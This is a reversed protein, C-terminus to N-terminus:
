KWAYMGEPLNLVKKIFPVTLPEKTRDAERLAPVLMDHVEGYNDCYTQIFNKVDRSTINETFDKFSRDIVPLIRIGFKIRRYFQPMGAKNRKRLKEINETLQDTGILVLSCLSHLADYLEKFACLAPQKMYEAEDFILQPSLGQNKLVKLWLAISRIKNSKTKGTTLRLQDIIKDLLDGLNDSSGVTIIFTDRPHKSAYLKVSYSKGCGTEGVIVNAEGHDKATQLNSLVAYLQNTAKMEWYEKKLKVGAFEALAFFYSDAIDGTKDGATYKFDSGEKLLINVYGKNLGTKSAVDAQTLSHQAMYEKVATIVAQKQTTEM